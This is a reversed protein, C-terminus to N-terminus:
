CWVIEILYMSGDLFARGHFFPDRSFRHIHIWDNDEVCMLKYHGKGIVSGKFTYKNGWLDIDVTIRKNKIIMIGFGRHNDDNLKYRFERKISM